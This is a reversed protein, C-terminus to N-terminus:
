SNETSPWLYAHTAKLLRYFSYGKRTSYSFWSLAWAMEERQKESYPSSHEPTWQLRTVQIYRRSIARWVLWSQARRRSKSNWSAAAASCLKLDQGTTGTLAKLFWANSHSKQLLHRWRGRNEMQPSVPGQSLLQTQVSAKYGHVMTNLRHTCTHNYNSLNSTRETAFFM